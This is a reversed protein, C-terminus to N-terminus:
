HLCIWSAIKQETGLKQLVNQIQDYFNHIRFFNPSRLKGESDSSSGCILRTDNRLNRRGKSHFTKHNRRAIECEEIPIELTFEDIENEPQQVRGIHNGNLKINVFNTSNALPTIKSNLNPKNEEADRKISKKPIPASSSSSSSVQWTLPRHFTVQIRVATSSSSASRKPKLRNKKNTTSEGEFCDVEENAAENKTTTRLSQARRFQLNTGQLKEKMKRKNQSGNMEPLLSSQPVSNEIISEM